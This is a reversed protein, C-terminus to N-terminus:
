LAPQSTPTAALARRTAYAERPSDTEREVGAGLACGADSARTSSRPGREARADSWHAPRVPEDSRAERCSTGRVRRATCSTGRRMSSAAGRGRRRRHVDPRPDSSREKRAGRRPVATAARGPRVCPSRSDSSSSACRPEVDQADAAALRARRARVLGVCASTRRARAVARERANVLVMRETIPPSATASRSSGRKRWSRCAVTARM